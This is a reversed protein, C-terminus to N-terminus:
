RAEPSCTLQHRESVRLAFRLWVSSKGCVAPILEAKRKRKNIRQFLRNYVNQGLEGIM